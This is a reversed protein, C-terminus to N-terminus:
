THHVSALSLVLYSRLNGLVTRSDFGNFQFHISCSFTCQVSYVSADFGTGTDPTTNNQASRYAPHM